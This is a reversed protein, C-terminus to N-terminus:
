EAYPVMINTIVSARVTYLLEPLRLWSMSCPRMHPLVFQVGLFVGSSFDARPYGMDICLGIARRVFMVTSALVGTTKGLGWALGVQSSRVQCLLASAGQACTTRTHYFCM